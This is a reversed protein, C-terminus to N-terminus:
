RWDIVGNAGPRGLRELHWEMLGRVAFTGQLGPEDPSPVMISVGRPLPPPPGLSMNLMVSIAPPPAGRYDVLNWGAHDEVQGDRVLVAANARASPYVFGDVNHTRMWNGVYQSIGKFIDGGPM